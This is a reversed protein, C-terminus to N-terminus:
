KDIVEELYVVTNLFKHHSLNSIEDLGHDYERGMIKNYTSVRYDLYLENKLIGIDDGHEEYSFPYLLKVKEKSKETEIYIEIFLPQCKWDVFIGQKLVKDKHIVKVERQNFRCLIKEFKDM